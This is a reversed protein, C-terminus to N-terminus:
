MSSSKLFRKLDNALNRSGNRSLNMEFDNIAREVIVGGAKIEYAKSLVSETIGKVTDCSYNSPFLVADWCILNYSSENVKGYKKGDITVQEGITGLGRSSVSLRGGGELIAIGILGSPTELLRSKGYVEGNGILKAETMLTCLNNPNIEHANKEPHNMEGFASKTEIREKKYKSVEREWLAESYVRGNRNPKTDAYVGELYWFKKGNVSEQIPEVNENYINGEALLYKVM